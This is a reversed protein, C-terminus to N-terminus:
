AVPYKAVLALTEDMQEPSMAGVTMADMAGNSQAFKICEDKKHVLQGEGYIKMGIVGKGNAKAKKLLAIVEEPSADMKVQDPNIRSLMVDVWPLEAAIQMAGWNHCSVGVAKIRGKQKAETLADMYPKMEETWDPNVLCHLLVIDLYDTAIEHQFRDIAMQASKYRQQAPLEAPKKSDYRWWLKTLITVKERPITRLAERCYLHSGYLDAMDFFTVGRDYSHQFLGVLKEFGLKTQDSQRNRGKMGTGLGVRSMTIGTKGLRVQEPAVVEAQAKGALTGLYAAAGIAPMFERRKIGNM